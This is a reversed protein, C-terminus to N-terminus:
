ELTRWVDILRQAANEPSWHEARLRARNEREDVDAGGALVEDIAAAWDAPDDSDILLGGDGVVESLAAHDAAVIPLGSRMAELVPLGFGEYASPFVLADARRYLGRLSAASVRGPRVIRASSRDAAAAVDDEARGVGGTLVVTLEPREDHLRQAADLLLVHRKHPHTIAPFLLVPGNGLSDALRSDVFDEADWTSSVAVTTARDSGLLDVVTSAVWESPTTVVRARRVSRPLAARLYRRKGMSFNQPLQLPQLDHITLVDNGRTRAPLRGGFHHVVDAGATARHVQTSEALVRWPRREMPGRLAISDGAALAPYSDFLAPSGIISLEIDAPSAAIVASLLRTTYEESGGVRGPVLWALNAAVRM